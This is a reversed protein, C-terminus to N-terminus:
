GRWVPLTSAPITEDTSYVQWLLVEFSDGSRIVHISLSQTDNIPFSDELGSETGSMLASVSEVASTDAAYYVTTYDAARNSVDRDALASILTLASFVTLTLVLLVTLISLIGFGPPSITQEKL